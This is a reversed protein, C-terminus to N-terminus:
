LKKMLIMLVIRSILTKEKREAEEEKRDELSLNTFEFDVMKKKHKQRIQYM